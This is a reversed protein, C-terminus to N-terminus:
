LNPGCVQVGASAYSMSSSQRLPRAHLCLCNFGQRCCHVSTLIILWILLVQYQAYNVLSPALKPDTQPNWAHMLALFAASM